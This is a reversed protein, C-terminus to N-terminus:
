EIKKYSILFEVFLIGFILDGIAPIVPLFNSFDLLFYTLFLIIMYFKGIAGLIVVGHNKHIDRSVIYYGIGIIFVLGFFGHVFVLSPPTEMGFASTVSDALPSLAIFSIGIIINYIAGILFLYKYYIKREM